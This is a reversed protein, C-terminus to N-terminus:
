LPGGRGRRSSGPRRFSLEAASRPRGCAEQKTDVDREQTIHRGRGVGPGGRGVMMFTLASGLFQVNVFPAMATLLVGGFVLMWLFDASRNRFSGEELSKSYKILFYIHFFFDIGSRRHTAPCTTCSIATHPSLSATFLILVMHPEGSGGCALRTCAAGLQHCTAAEKPGGCHTATM